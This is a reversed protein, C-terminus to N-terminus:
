GLVKYNAPDERSLFKKNYRRTFLYVNSRSLFCDWSDCSVGLAIPFVRLNSLWKIEYILAFIYEAPELDSGYPKFPM